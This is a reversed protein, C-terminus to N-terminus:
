PSTNAQQAAQWARGPKTRLLIRTVTAASVQLFLPTFAVPFIVEPPFYQSALVAGASTNRMGTNIGMSMAIPFSKNQLLGIYFGLFYGFLCLGITAAIVLVLTRNLQRLFPACSTANAVIVVLLGLKAFPDLVPKVTKASRGHTSDYLAMALLAPIGVMILLDGMMGAADMEVVSGVLIRLTLPVVVPALVTDLLLISLSLTVNGGAMGAWMLSAVATPISYELILGLTFLPSDPFLLTGLGMAALPMMLHLLVFVTIVPKPHRVVQFLDRFGGGLSNVFTIFAFLPVTIRSLASLSGSFLLGLTVCGVTFFPYYRGLFKNCRILADM